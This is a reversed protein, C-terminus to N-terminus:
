QMMKHAKMPLLIATPETGFLDTCSFLVLPMQNRVERLFNASVTGMHRTTLVYIGYRASKINFLDNLLAILELICM